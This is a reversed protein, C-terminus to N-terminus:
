SHTYIALSANDEAGNKFVEKMTTDFIEQITKRKTNKAIFSLSITDKEYICQDVGDTFLMVIDDEQLELHTYKTASHTPLRKRLGLYSFAGIWTEQTELNFKINGMTDVIMLRCDGYNIISLKSENIEIAIFAAEPTFDKEPDMNEKGFLDFIEKELNKSQEIAEQLSSPFMKVKKIWFDIARRSTFNGWHGDAICIRTFNNGTLCGVTDENEKKILGITTGLAVRKCPISINLIDNEQSNKNPLIIEQM